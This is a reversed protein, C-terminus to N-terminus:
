PRTGSVFAVRDVFHLERQPYRERMEDLGRALEEDAFTSLVSMWRNRVLGIYQDRDASVPFEEIATETELGAARMADAIGEPEPHREAFRDLAADFLPYDLRPPLTVVLLRGGPALRDALGRM